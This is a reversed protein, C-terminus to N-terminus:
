HQGYKEKELKKLRTCEELLTTKRFEKDSMKAWDLEGHNAKYSLSELVEKAICCCEGNYYIVEINGDSAVYVDPGMFGWNTKVRVGCGFLFLLCIVIIINKIM